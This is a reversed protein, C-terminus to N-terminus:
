NTQTCLLIRKRSISQLSSGVVLFFVFGNLYKEEIRTCLKLKQEIKIRRLFFWSSKRIFIHYSNIRNLTLSPQMLDFLCDFKKEWKFMIHCHNHFWSQLTNLDREFVNMYSLTVIHLICYCRKRFRILFCCNLLFLKKKTFQVFSFHLFLFSVFNHFM